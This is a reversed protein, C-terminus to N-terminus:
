PQSSRWRVYLRNFAGALGGPMLLIVAILLLGYLAGPASKSFHELVNPMYLVFIAGLVAGELRTAGGLVVGVLLSISLALSYSDPSVFQTLLGGLAGAMGVYMASIGFITARNMTTNIGMTQAAVPQDRLAELARGIRSHMLNKAVVFLCAAFIAIVILFWQDTNLPIGVPAGPRDIVLGQAGGTWQELSKHKLLQPMAISLAFTALALYHGALRSAPFGFLFGTVMCILGVAPIALLVPLQFQQVLIAAGYAGLAFFAGHGLSLQGSYGILLNLGVIAISFVLVQSVQFLIYGKALMVFLTIVVFYAMLVWQVRNSNSETRHPLARDPVSASSPNKTVQM